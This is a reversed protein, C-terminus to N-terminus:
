PGVRGTACSVLKSPNLVPASPGKFADNGRGVLGLRRERDMQRYQVGDLTLVDVLGFRPHVRQDLTGTSPQAGCNVPLRIDGVSDHTLVARADTM